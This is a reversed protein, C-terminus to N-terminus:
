YKVLIRKGIKVLINTIKKSLRHPNKIYGLWSPNTKKVWERFEKWNLTELKDLALLPANVSDILYGKPQLYKIIGRAQMNLIRVERVRDSEVNIDVSKIKLEREGRKNMIQHYHFTDSVRFYKGGSKRILEMFIIDENRQLYDDEIQPLINIFSSTKGFQSGSYARQARNQADESYEFLVTMKRYCEFWDYEDRHAYMSDFWGEPLYIDAHLYVFYETAINEILEKICYGLSKYSQQDIVEIRPFQKVIEISDDTCGGDGIILRNVPIERYFSFLNAQWLENTNILPIIVDVAKEREKLFRDQLRKEEFYERFISSNKM